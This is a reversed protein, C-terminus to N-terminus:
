AAKDLESESITAQHKTMVNDAIHPRTMEAQRRWQGLIRVYQLLNSRMRQWEAETFTGHEISELAARAASELRTPNIEAKPKLNM